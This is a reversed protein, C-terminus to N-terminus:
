YSLVKKGKLAIQKDNNKNYLEVTAEYNIIGGKNVIVDPRAKSYVMHRVYPERLFKYDPKSIKAFRKSITKYGVPNYNAMHISANIFQPSGIDATHLHGHINLIGEPCPFQPEHSLLIRPAIYFPHLYVEDFAQQYLALNDQRDHNGYLFIIEMDYERRLSLIFDLYSVDGFDGLIFLTEGRHKAAFSELANMIYEDHEAMSKFQTREILRVGRVRGFGDIHEDNFHLDSIFWCKSINYERM